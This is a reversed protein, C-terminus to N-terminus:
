MHLKYSVFNPINLRHVDASNFYNIVTLYLSHGLVGSWFIYGRARAARRLIERIRIDRKSEQIHGFEVNIVIDSAHNTLKVIRHRVQYALYLGTIIICPQNILLGKRCSDGENQQPEAQVRPM